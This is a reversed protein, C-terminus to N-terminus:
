TAGEMDQGALVIRARGQRKAQYLARDAADALADPPRPAGPDSEAIGISMSLPVEPDGSAERLAPLDAMLTRAKSQAGAIATDELWVAFEDGGIRGALDAIRIHGGLMDGIRRLVADGASHGLRDNVSKFHDLDIFLFCGPRGSRRQHGIRVAIEEFLARRNLLGTLEDTRSLRELRAVMEAQKLAVALHDAIGHVLEVEHARWPERGTDRSFVVATCEGAPTGARAVLCDTGEVGIQVSADPDGEDAPHDLLRAALPKLAAAGASEPDNAATEQEAGGTRVAWAVEARLADAAAQAAVSAIEATEAESRIAMAIQSLLANRAQDLRLAAEREREETVDRAVGRAGCWAGASDQVPKASVQLVVRRGATDRVQLEVDEVPSRATFIRAAEDGSLGLLAGAERGNLERPGYGLMGSPGVYAFCGRSDTEWGFDASCAVLDKYLDRSRLLASTLNHEFTVDRATVLLTDHDLPIAAIEFSRRTQDGDEGFTLSAGVPGGSAAASFVLGRLDADGDEWADALVRAARNALHLTGDLGALMSPGEAREVLREWPSSAAKIATGAETM